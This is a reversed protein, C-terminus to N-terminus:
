NGSKAATEDFVPSLRALERDALLLTLGDAKAKARIDAAATADRPYEILLVKTGARKLARIPKASATVTEASNQRGDHEVGYFLDEKAFVDISARVKAQPTLEEANQMVMLFRPNRKHAHNKLRSLLEVMDRDATKREALFEQYVDVRDLYVGDFGAEIIRDLYGGAGDAGGFLISQWQPDWFRVPFNGRWRPNEIGIWGPRAQPNETWAKPWYWRYDEAEGISLYAILLRRKGDPRRQMMQVDSRAFPWETAYLVDPRFDIVVLDFPSAAVEFPDIRRYQIAWSKVDRVLARREAVTGQPTQASAPPALLSFMGTLLAILLRVTHPIM